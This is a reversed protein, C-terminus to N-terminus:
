KELRAKLNNLGEDFQSGLMKEMNMFWCIITGPFTMKGEMGWKVKTQTESVAETVYYATDTAQMPELFRLESDIREGEVIKKIEQEGKGTEKGTWASVAGVTGDTGRYEMQITPDKTSWPNWEAGNKQFKLYNFVVAKPQNITIERELKFEKPAAFHLIAILLVLAGLIGLVIKKM